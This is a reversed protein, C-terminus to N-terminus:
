KTKESVNIFKYPYRATSFYNEDKLLEYNTGFYHNFVVRFTNVPTIYRYLDKYDSNPFYYANLISMCEKFYTQDPNEWVLTSRPGHDAQLIIIPPDKSKSLIVDLTEGVKKNIFILQDIYAKIYEERTIGGKGILWNGDFTLSPTQHYIEEGNQGFVFPPHPAEIHAFVFIPTKFKTTDMLHTLIFLLRKRHLDFPNTIRMMNLLPSILTTAILTNQFEDFSYGPTIYIDANKIETEDCGSSFAVITYGYKKLFHFVNSNKIMHIVPKLDYVEINIHEVLDNLYKLNLSSALSLTTQCYNSTSKNAIYFGKKTLYDIFESNEYNYVEKLIDEGAYADLIIFYINPYASLKEKLNRSKIKANQKGLKEQWAYSTQFKFVGINILCFSVSIAAVINLFNTFNHLRERTKIIVCTCIISITVLIIGISIKETIFGFSTKKIAQYIHGYSFFLLLFLSVLLGAKEKDRLMLSLLFWLLMASGVIIATPMFIVNLLLEGINHSFLFLTPFLAFLFPHFVSPKKM